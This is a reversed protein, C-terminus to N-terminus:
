KTKPESCWIALTPLSFLFLLAVVNDLLTPESVPYRKLLMGHEVWRDVIFVFLFSCLVALWPRRGYKFSLVICAMAPLWYILKVWSYQYRLVYDTAMYGYESM